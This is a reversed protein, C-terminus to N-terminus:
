RMCGFRRCPQRIAVGALAPYRRSAVNSYGEPAGMDPCQGPQSAVCADVPIATVLPNLESGEDHDRTAKCSNLQLIRLSPPLYGFIAKEYTSSMLGPL